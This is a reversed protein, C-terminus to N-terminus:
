SLFVALMFSFKSIKDMLDITNQHIFHPLFLYKQYPLICIFQDCKFFILYLVQQFHENEMPPASEKSM